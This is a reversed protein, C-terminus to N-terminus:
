LLKPKSLYEFVKKVQPTKNSYRRCLVNSVVLGMAVAFLGGWLHHHAFFTGLMTHPLSRSWIDYFPVSTMGGTVTFIFSLVLGGIILLSPNRDYFLLTILGLLFFSTTTRYAMIGASESRRNM